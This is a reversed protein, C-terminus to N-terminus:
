YAFCQSVRSSNDAGFNAFGGGDIVRVARGTYGSYPSRLWYARAISSSDYKKRDSVNTHNAWYNLTTLAEFEQQVSCDRTGTMEKEALIFTKDSTSVLSTSNGNKATQITTNTLISQLASSLLLLKTPLTTTRMDSINYDNYASNDDVNTDANWEIAGSDVGVEEFVCHKGNYIAM